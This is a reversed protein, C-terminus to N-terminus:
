RLRQGFELKSTCSCMICATCMRPVSVIRSRYRFSHETSTTATITSVKTKRVNADVLDSTAVAVLMGIDCALKLATWAFSIVIRTSEVVVPVNLVVVVATVVVVDVFVVVVVVVEVVNVM